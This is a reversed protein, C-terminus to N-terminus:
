QLDDLLKNLKQSNPKTVELDKLTVIIPVDVKIKALEKSM